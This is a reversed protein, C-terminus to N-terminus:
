DYCHAGAEQRQAQGSSVTDSPFLQCLGSSQPRVKFQAQRLKKVGDPISQSPNEILKSRQRRLHDITQQACHTLIGLVVGRLAIRKGPSGRQGGDGAPM